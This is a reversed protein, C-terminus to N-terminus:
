WPNGVMTFASWFFPHTLTADRPIEWESPLAIEGKSTLLHGNELRTEGRLLALQARRLAEFRLDSSKLQAYFESM